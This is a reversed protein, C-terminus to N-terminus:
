NKSGTSSTNGIEEVQYMIAIYDAFMALPLAFTEVSKDTQDAFNWVNAIFEVRRFYDPFEIGSLNFPNKLIVFPESEKNTGEWILGLVSYCHNAMLVKQAEVEKPQMKFTSHTAAISVDKAALSTRSGEALVESRTSTGKYGCISLLQELIRRKTNLGISFPSKESLPYEPTSSLGPRIPYMMPRIGLLNYMAQDSDKSNAALLDPELNDKPKNYLYAFAKEYIGPWLEGTDRSSAGWLKGFIRKLDETVKIEQPADSQPSPWMKISVTRDGSGSAYRDELNRIVKPKCFAMSILTAILYCDELDPSQRPDLYSVSGVIIQESDTEAHEVNKKQGASRPVGTVKDNSSM